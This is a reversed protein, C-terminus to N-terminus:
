WAVSLAELKRINQQSETIMGKLKHASNMAVLQLLKDINVENTEIRFDLGDTTDAVLIFDQLIGQYDKVMLDSQFGSMAKVQNDSLRGRRSRTKLPEAM